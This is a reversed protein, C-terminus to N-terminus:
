VRERVHPFFVNQREPKAPNTGDYILDDLIDNTELEAMATVTTRIKGHLGTSSASFKVSGGSPIITLSRRKSVPQCSVTSQM